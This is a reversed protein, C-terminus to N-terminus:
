LKKRGTMEAWLKFQPSLHNRVQFLTHRAKKNDTIQIYKDKM